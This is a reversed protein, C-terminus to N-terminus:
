EANREGSVGRGLSRLPTQRAPAGPRKAGRRLRASRALPEGELRVGNEKILRRAEGKSKAFGCAVVLDAAAIEGDSLLDSPIQVDPIEDPLGSKGAGHIRFFEDVASQAAEASHFKTVIQRGLEV